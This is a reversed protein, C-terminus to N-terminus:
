FYSFNLDNQQIIVNFKEYKQAIKILNAENKTIKDFFLIPKCLNLNYNKLADYNIKGYIKPTNFKVCSLIHDVFQLEKLSLFKEDNPTLCNLFLKISTFYCPKYCNIKFKKRTKLLKKNLKLRITLILICILLTIIVYIM